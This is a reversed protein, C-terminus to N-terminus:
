IIDAFRRETRRFYRAGSWLTASLVVTALVLDPIRLPSLGGSIAWRFGDIIGVMPNLAYLIRWQGPIVTSSFGVPSVYLGFQAVFPVVQRFDRYKVTLAALWLGVGLSLAFALLAFFPLFIIQWGPVIGYWFMLILLIVGSIAWDMLSVIVSSAPIIMRPFYIKSILHADDILSSSCESMASSFFQWPMLAALVLIPYPMGASPLQALRGFVVTLAVMTLVPKLVAWAIGIVTQKYRVLVDRWALFYFLERYQWFDRCLGPFDTTDGRRADIVLEPPQSAPM